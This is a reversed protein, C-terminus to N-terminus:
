FGHRKFIEAYSGDDRMARIAQNFAAAIATNQPHSRRVLIHLGNESLPKHLFELQDRLDVLERNLYYRAVYEDELTLDVRGAALMRAGMRFDLVKQKHLLPDSDFRADYAYGRAVAISYRRLDELREFGIKSGKRQVFLIRNILYPESFRGFQARESSYWAGVLVDYTGDQLGRLTRAGPVETYTVTYGARQLASSVLDVALGNNLLRQDTFPPWSNAVLRLEEPVAVGIALWLAVFALTRIKDM